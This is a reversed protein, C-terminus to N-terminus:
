PGVQEDVDDPLPSEEDDQPQMVRAISFEEEGVRITLRERGMVLQLEPLWSPEEALLAQLPEHVYKELFRAMTPGALGELHEWAEQGVYVEGSANHFATRLEDLKPSPTPDLVVLVPVYGSQRCDEPFELEEGWRGQGSAAITMRIKIEYARKERLCDVQRGKNGDKRRKIPSKRASAPVGGVAAAIIPEFLYGTEQGARNDIDFIWKRWLLFGALTKPGTSGYQLLGRPGVQDVTPVSQTELIREYKLRAKHLAALCGFYVDSNADLGVLREFMALFLTGPLELRSLPSPSFFEPLTEPVEPFRAQLGLDQVIVGVLYACAEDSLAVAQGGAGLSQARTIIARQGQTLAM